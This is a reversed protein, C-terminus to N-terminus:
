SAAKPLIEWRLTDGELVGKVKRGMLFALAQKETTESYNDDGGTAAAPILTPNNEWQRGNWKEAILGESTQYLRHVFVAEMYKISKPDRDLIFYYKL